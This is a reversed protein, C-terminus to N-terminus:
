LWEPQLAELSPNRLLQASWRWLCFIPDPAPRSVGQQMRIPVLEFQVDIAGRSHDYLLWGGASWARVQSFSQISSSFVSQWLHKARLDTPLPFNELLITKFRSLSGLM